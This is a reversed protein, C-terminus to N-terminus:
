IWIYFCSRFNKLHGYIARIVLLPINSSNLVIIQTDSHCKGELWSASFVSSIVKQRTQKARVSMIMHFIHVFTMEQRLSALSPNSRLALMSGFCNKCSSYHPILINKNKFANSSPNNAWKWRISSAKLYQTAPASLPLGRSSRYHQTTSIRRSSM